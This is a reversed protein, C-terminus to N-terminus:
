PRFVPAPEADLGLDIARVRQRHGAMLRWAQVAEPLHEPRIPANLLQALAALQDEASSEECLSM